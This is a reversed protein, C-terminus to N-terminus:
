AWWAADKFPLITTVQRYSRGDFVKLETWADRGPATVIEARGDGNVDGVAVRVGQQYTAYGSFGLHADGWPAVQHALRGRGDWGRVDPWGADQGALIQPPPPDANAAGAFVLLCVSAAVVKRFM